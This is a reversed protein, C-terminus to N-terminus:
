IPVIYVPTDIVFYVEVEVVEVIIEHLPLFSVVYIDSVVYPMVLHAVANQCIM